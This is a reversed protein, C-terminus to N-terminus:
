KMLEIVRMHNSKSVEFSHVNAEFSRQAEKADAVEVITNVNPFKVYGNQNASPHHPMYKLIFSSYDRGIKRIKVVDAGLEPIFKNEFYIVKRRYPDSQADKSTVNANAINQAVIKLRQSQAHMGSEAVRSAAVLADAETRAFSLCEVSAIGLLVLTFGCASFFLCIRRYM